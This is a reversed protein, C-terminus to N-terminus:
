YIVRVGVGWGMDSDYHGSAAFNRAFRYSLGAMYERDTNVMAAARLRPTLPIDERELQLRFNGDTFVEAQFTVLMPLVYNVGASLVARQDKTNRQGFINEEGVTGDSAVQTKRYRWDFGVFPM